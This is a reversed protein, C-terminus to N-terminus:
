ARAFGPTAFTAIRACTHILIRSGNHATGVRQRTVIRACAHISIGGDSWLSAVQPTVIRACAHISIAHLGM